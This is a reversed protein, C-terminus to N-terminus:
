DENHKSELELRFRLSGIGIIDDDTIIVPQNIPVDNMLTGNHGERDELWWQNHRLDLLPHEHSEFM